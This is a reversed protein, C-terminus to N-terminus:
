SLHACASSFNGGFWAYLLDIAASGCPRLHAQLRKFEFFFRVMKRRLFGTLLAFKVLQM